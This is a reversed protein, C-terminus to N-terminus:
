GVSPLLGTDSRPPAPRLVHSAATGSATAVATIVPRPGAAAVSVAVVPVVVALATVVVVLVVGSGDVVVVVDSGDGVLAVEVVDDVDGSGVVVDDEEDVDLEGTGM